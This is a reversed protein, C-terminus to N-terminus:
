CVIALIACLPKRQVVDLIQLVLGFGFIWFIWLGIWIRFFRIWNRFSWYLLRVWSFGNGFLGKFFM